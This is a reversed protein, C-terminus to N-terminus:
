TNTELSATPDATPVGLLDALLRRYAVPLRDARVHVEERLDLPVSMTEYAELIDLDEDLVRDEFEEAQALRVASGGLDNRAMMKFIRTSTPSEPQCSFLITITKGTLPFELRILATTAPIVEKYLLQPQELPHEGTAVMPDDHNRYMVEYTTWAKGEGREVTVPPLYGSDPVGFTGTHVTPLHTADLFNECLQVASVTTRRPENWHTDFTDDGWEPFDPLECTPEEPAIWVLGYREEVRAPPRLCARSPIASGTDASPIDVCQGDVGFKWGHYRCRLSGDIVEGRHLPALRHPCRDDFVRVEGALRVAVWPRDLLRVGIPEDGVETSLAIAYWSRELGPSTNHADIM